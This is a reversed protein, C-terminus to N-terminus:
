LYEKGEYYGAIALGICEWILFATLLVIGGSERKMENADMEQVGMLELNKM